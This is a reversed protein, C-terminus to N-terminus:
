AARTGARKPMTSAM